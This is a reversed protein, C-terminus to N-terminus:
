QYDSLATLLQEPFVRENNIFAVPRHKPNPIRLTKKKALLRLTGAAGQVDAKVIRLNKKSTHMRVQKGDWLTAFNQAATVSVFSIFCYGQNRECSLNTPVYLLDYSDWHPWEELLMDHTYHRPINYVMLTITASEAARSCVRAASAVAAPVVQSQGARPEQAVSSSAARQGGQEYQCKDMFLMFHEDDSDFLEEQPLQKPQVTAVKAAADHFLDSLKPLQSPHPAPAPTFVAAVAERDGGDVFGARGPGSFQGGPQPHKTVAAATARPVADAQQARWSGYPAAAMRGYGSGQSVWTVDSSEGSRKLTTADWSSFSTSGQSGGGGRLPPSLHELLRRETGYDRMMDCRGAEPYDYGRRGEAAAAQEDAQVDTSGADHSDRVPRRLLATEGGYPRPQM